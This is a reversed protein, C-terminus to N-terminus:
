ADSPKLKGNITIQGLGNIAYVVGQADTVSAGSGTKYTGNPSAVPM